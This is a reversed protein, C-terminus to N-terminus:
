NSRGLGRRLSRLLHRRRRLGPDRRAREADSVSAADRHRDDLGHGHQQLRTFNPSCRQPRRQHSRRTCETAPSTSTTAAPGVTSKRTLSRCDGELVFPRRCRLVRCLHGEDGCDRAAARRASVAGLGTGSLEVDVRYAPRGTSLRRGARQTHGVRLRHRESRRGRRRAIRHDGRARIGRLRDRRESLAESSPGESFYPTPHLVSRRRLRSRGHRRSQFARSSHRTSDFALTCASRTGGPTETSIPTPSRITTPTNGSGTTTSRRRLRQRRTLRRRRLAM